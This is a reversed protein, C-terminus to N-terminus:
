NLLLAGLLIHKLPKLNNSLINIIEEKNTRIQLIIVVVLIIM